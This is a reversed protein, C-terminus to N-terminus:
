YVYFGDVISLLSVGSHVIKEGCYADSCLMVLAYLGSFVYQLEFRLGYVCM